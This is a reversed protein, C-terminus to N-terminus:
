RLLGILASAMGTGLAAILTIWEKPGLHARIGGNALKLEIRAQGDGLEKVRDALQEVKHVLGDNNRGGGAINPRLTGVIVTALESTCNELSGVRDNLTIAAPM